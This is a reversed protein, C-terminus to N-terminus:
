EPNLNIININSGKMYFVDEHQEHLPSGLLFFSVPLWISSTDETISLCFLHSDLNVIMWLATLWWRLWAHCYLSGESGLSILLLHVCGIIKHEFYQAFLMFLFLFMFLRMKQSYHYPPWVRRRSVGRYVYMFFIRLVSRWVRRSSAIGFRVNLKLALWIAGIWRGSSQFVRFTM